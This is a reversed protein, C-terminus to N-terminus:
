HVSMQMQAHRERLEELITAYSADSFVNNQELPDETLNFLEEYNYQPWYIYKIDHRVVASSMPMSKGNNLPFEYFFENRWPKTAAGQNQNNHTLYLDAMDRGQIELPAEIGAAGLITPALDINLTLADNLTNRAEPPMRPDRIILPVRISEQYPYWKGALGHEAHFM